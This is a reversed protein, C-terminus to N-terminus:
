ETFSVKLEAFAELALEELYEPAVPNKSDFFMLEAAARLEVLPGETHELSKNRGAFHAELSILLNRLFYKQLKPSVSNQKLEELQLFFADEFAEIYVRSYKM